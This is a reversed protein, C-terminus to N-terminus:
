PQYNVWVPSSWAVNGDKQEVRVYYYHVGPRPSNERYRLDYSEGSPTQSYIYENDRVVTVKKLPGTGTIKATLEPPTKSTIEDGQLAGNVRYDLLINSTAAYTHRKRMADMLGERSPNEAIVCAYSTHTSVHDSSAQVGLKYGKAWANWVFGLPRYGGAWLETRKETPSLPAGEHEASTRAGQFIEVIPELAPDNDRWDTGMVTHSTHSTALGSNKKLYPFLVPGTSSKQEAPTIPLIRVGRQAFILNRHGNPYGLSRETGYLATFVGPVHFMDTAKQTRWWTYEQNGSQHDTVMLYDMAAADIAYRYSDFLTGDGAGDASIETHRHLDGRYIHFTKGGAQIAHTRLRAVQEAERPESPLGGPPEPPRPALQAAVGDSARLTAFMVDNNQPPEGFNPGGWLRHDSVAAIHINGAADAVGQVEGGNRGVSGPVLMLESWRDGSYQTAVVEWKGGAAWLSTPLRASTRPRALLWMRGGAGAVLRPSQFYRRYGYPAVGGPQRLPTLWRSGDYAAVKITRSDYLGTGGSLLFGVDKGWNEPAEDYAIWVRNQADIALSAHSHFRTSETVRLPPGPKGSRVSRLSINYSGTAYSDWAIWATGARDVAIAPFWDNAPSESLKIESGWKGSAYARYFIDGSARRSSQYAVHVTGDSGAAIRHFLNNGEGATIIETRGLGGSQMYSRSKLRWNAGERESWVVTVTGRAAAVAPMFVDAPKETVEIREGWQGGSYRRLFVRDAEGKYAQWALWVDNGDAALSPYDDEYEGTTVASVIPTRYVEVSAALPFIGESEPVDMARFSFEGKPVQVTFEADPPARFQITVGIPEVPTPQPQPKENPHMGAAFPAWPHTSCEWANDPLVKSATTFHYGTLKEITGKSIRVSGDWKAPTMDKSGFVLTIAQSAGDLAAPQAAAVQAEISPQRRLLIICSAALIGAVALKRM